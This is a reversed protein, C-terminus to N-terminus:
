EGEQEDPTPPAAAVSMVAPTYKGAVPYTKLGPILRNNLWALVRLRGHEDLPEILQRCREMAALEPDRVKKAPATPEPTPKSM